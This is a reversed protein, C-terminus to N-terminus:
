MMKTCVLSKKKKQHNAELAKKLTEYEHQLPSSDSEKKNNIRKVIQEILVENTAITPLKELVQKDAHDTRVGNSRCVASGKNKWAGCVYYELVISFM